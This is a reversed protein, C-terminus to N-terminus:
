YDIQNIETYLDINLGEIEKSCWIVHNYGFM